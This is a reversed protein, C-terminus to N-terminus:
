QLPESVNISEGPTNPFKSEDVTVEYRVLIAALATIIETEAFRILNILIHTQINQTNCSPHSVESRYM